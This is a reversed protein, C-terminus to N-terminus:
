PVCFYPLLCKMCLDVLKTNSIINESHLKMECVVNMSLSKNPYGHLPLETTTTLPTLKTVHELSGGKFDGKYLKKHLLFRSTLIYPFSALYFLQDDLLAAM